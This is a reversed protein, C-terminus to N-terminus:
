IEQISSVAMLLLRFEMNIQQKMAIWLQQLRLCVSVQSSVHQVSLDLDSVLRLQM